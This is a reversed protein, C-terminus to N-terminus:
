WDSFFLHKEMQKLTFIDQGLIELLRGQTVQYGRFWDKHVFPYMGVM